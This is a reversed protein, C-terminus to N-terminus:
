EDSYEFVLKEGAIKEYIEIIDEVDNEFHIQPDYSKTIFVNDQFTNDNPVLIDSIKDFKKLYPGIINIAPEIEYEPHDTEVLTSIIALYYGKQCIHYESNLVTILIDNKRCIEKNPIIILCSKKNDTNAISHDLICIRRFIKGISKVKGYKKLYSPETILVKGYIEENQTKIGSFKGKEDYLIEDISKNLNYIGGNIFSKRIFAGSLVCMGFEPYIFSSNGYRGYSSMYLQIKNITLLAKKELYDDNIYFSIAHGILTYTKVDLSYNIIIEKFPANPSLGNQTTPNDVDYEEINDMLKKLKSKESKGIFSTTGTQQVEYIAGYAKSFFGGKSFHYIYMGDIGKFEIFETIDSKLIMKVLTGNALIFKSTLDVHWDENKNFLHSLGDTKEDQFYKYINKLNLSATESGVFNNRDLQCIRIEGKKEDEFIKKANKALLCALASEKM